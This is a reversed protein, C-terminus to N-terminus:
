QLAFLQIRSTIRQSTAFDPAPAKDTQYKIQETAIICVTLAATVVVAGDFILNGPRGLLPREDAAGLMHDPLQRLQLLGIQLALAFQVVTNGARQGRGVFFGLAGSPIWERRLSEGCGLYAVNITKVRLSAVGLWCIVM